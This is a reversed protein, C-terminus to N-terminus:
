KANKLFERKKDLNSVFLLVQAVVEYLHPPINLGLDIKELEEVLEKDEYITVNSEKANELIKQAVYGSGKAVVKPAQMSPNYKIAVAKKDKMKKEM